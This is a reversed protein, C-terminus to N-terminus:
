LYFCGNMNNWLILCNIIKDGQKLTDYTFKNLAQILFQFLVEIFFSIDGYFYYCEPNLISCSALVFYVCVWTDELSILNNEFHFPNFITPTFGVTGLYFSTPSPAFLCDCQKPWSISCEDGCWNLLFFTATSVYFSV